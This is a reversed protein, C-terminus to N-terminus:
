HQQVAQSSGVPSAGGADDGEHVKLNIIIIIINIIILDLILITM